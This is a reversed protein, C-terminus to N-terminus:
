NIGTNDYLQNFFDRRKKSAFNDIFFPIIFGVFWVFVGWNNFVLAIFGLILSSIIYLKGQKIKLKYGEVRAKLNAIQFDIAELLTHNPKDKGLLDTKIIEASVPQKSSIKQNYFEWALSRLTSFIKNYQLALSDKGRVRQDQQDWKEKPVEISTNFDIRKNNITIRMMVPSKGKVNIRSKYLWFLIKM